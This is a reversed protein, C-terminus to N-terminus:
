MPRLLLCQRLVFRAQVGMGVCFEPNTKNKGNRGVKSHGIGGMARATRTVAQGSGDASPSHLCGRALEVVRFKAVRRKEGAPLRAESFTVRLLSVSDRGGM